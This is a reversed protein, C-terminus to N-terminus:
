TRIQNSPFRSIDLNVSVINRNVQDTSIALLLNQAHDPPDSTAALRPPNNISPSISSSFADFKLSDLDFAPDPPTRIFGSAIGAERATPDPMDAALSQQRLICSDPSPFVLFDDIDFDDMPEDRGPLATAPVSPFSFDILSLDDDAGALSGQQPDSTSSMSSFGLYVRAIRSLLFFNL